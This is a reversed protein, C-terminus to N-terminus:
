RTPAGDEVTRRFIPENWVRIATPGAAILGCSHYDVAGSHSLRPARWSTCRHDAILRDHGSRNIVVSM